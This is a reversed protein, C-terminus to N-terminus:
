TFAAAKEKYKADVALNCRKYGIVKCTLNCSFISLLSRGSWIFLVDYFVNKYM